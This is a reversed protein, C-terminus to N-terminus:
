LPLVRHANSTRRARDIELDSMVYVRKGGATRVFIFPDPAWFRTAYLANPDVTSAAYLLINRRRVASTRKM